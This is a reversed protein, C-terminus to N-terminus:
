SGITITSGPDVSPSALDSFSAGLSLLLHLSIERCKEVSAIAQASALSHVFMERKLSPPKCLTHILLGISNYNQLRLFLALRALRERNAIATFAINATEIILLM